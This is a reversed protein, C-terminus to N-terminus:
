KKFKFWLTTGLLLSSVGLIWPTPKSTEELEYVDTVQIRGQHIIEDGRQSTLQVKFPYIGVKASQNSYGDELVIMADFEFAHEAYHNILMYFLDIEALTTGLPVVILDDFKFVPPVNDVLRLHIIRQVTNQHQDKAELTVTYQGQNLFDIPKNSSKFTVPIPQAHMADKAWFLALITEITPAETLYLQVFPPGYFHPVVSQLVDIFITRQRANGSTDTVEITAQFSGITNEVYTTSLVTFDTIHGDYDDYFQYHTQIITQLSWLSLVEYTVREPGHILPAVTDQVHLMLNMRAENGQTDKVSLLVEYTGVVNEHGAYPNSLVQIQHSIDGDTNDYAKVHQDIIHSLTTAQRYDLWVEKAGQFYPESHPVFPIFPSVNEGIELQFDQMGYFSLYRALNGGSFSFYLESSTALLDIRCAMYHDGQYCKLNEVYLTENVYVHGESGEVFVHLDEIDDYLPLRLMYTSNPTVPIGQINELLVESPSYNFLNPDLLNTHTTSSLLASLCLIFWPIVKM